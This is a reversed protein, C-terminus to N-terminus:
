LNLRFSSSFVWFHILLQLRFDRDFAVFVLHKAGAAVVGGLLVEVEIKLPILV